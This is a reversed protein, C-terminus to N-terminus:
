RGIRRLDHRGLRHDAVLLYRGENAPELCSGAGASHKPSLKFLNTLWYLIRRLTSLFTNLVGMMDVVVVDSGNGETEKNVM